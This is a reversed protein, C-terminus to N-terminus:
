RIDQPTNKSTDRVDRHSGVRNNASLPIPVHEILHIMLRESLFSQFFPEDFSGDNENHNTYHNSDHKVSEFHGLRQGRFQAKGCNLFV